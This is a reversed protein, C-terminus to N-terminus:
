YPDKGMIRRYIDSGSESNLAKTRDNQEKLRRSAEAYCNLDEKCGMKISDLITRAMVDAEDASTVPSIAILCALAMVLSHHM